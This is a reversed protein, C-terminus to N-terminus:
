CQDATNFHESDFLDVAFDSTQPPLLCFSWGLSTLDLVRVVTESDGPILGVYQLQGRDVELAERSPFVLNPAAGFVGPLNCCYVM